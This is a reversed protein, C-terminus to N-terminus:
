LRYFRRATEGLLDAKQADSLGPHAQIEALEEKCMQPTVEHPFDSSFMFAGSGLLEIGRALDPEEGECGIVLRGDATLQVLYDAISQGDQLVLLEDRPNFPEHTSWSRDFREWAVLLWAVGGELFALRLGPFHDFVGTFVLSTLSILLGFPHSLAHAAPRTSIYDVGLRFGSAGHISLGCGLREAEAYVPWYEKSGLPSRLGVAPLVGGRMGLDQVGRRLEDAAAQPDQMPLLAMGHLKPHQQLYTAHLWDNYARCAAIAWDLNPIVGVGLGATPYLVSAEIGVEDLFGGWEAAGVPQGFGSEPLWQVPESHLHDVPPFLSAPVRAGRYPEPVFDLIGATGGVSEVVHGDGDIIAM